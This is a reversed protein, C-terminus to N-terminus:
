RWRMFFFGTFVRIAPLFRFEEELIEATYCSRTSSLSGVSAVSYIRIFGPFHVLIYKLFYLLNTVYLPCVLRGHAM